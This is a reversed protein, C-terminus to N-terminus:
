PRVSFWLQFDFPLKDGPLVGESKMAEYFALRGAPLVLVKEVSEVRLRLGFKEFVPELDRYIRGEGALRGAFENYGGQRPKGRSADWGASWKAAVALRAAMTFEKAGDPTLRGWNLSRFGPLDGHEKMKDLIRGILAAQEGLGFGCDARHRVVGRNLESGYVTWAIRCGGEEIAYHTEQQATDRRVTVDGALASAAAVVLACCTKLGSEYHGTTRPVM